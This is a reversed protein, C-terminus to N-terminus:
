FMPRNEMRNEYLKNMLSTAGGTQGYNGMISKVWANRDQPPQAPQGKPEAPDADRASAAHVTKRKKMVHEMTSTLRHQEAVKGKIVSHARASASHVIRLVDKALSPNVAVLQKLKATQAEKDQKWLSDETMSDDWLETLTELLKVGKQADAEKEKAVKAEEEAQQKQLIGESKTARDNALRLQERIKDLENVQAVLTNVVQDMKIADGGDAPTPATQQVVASAPPNAPAPTSVVQPTNEAQAAASADASMAAFSPNSTVLRRGTTNNSTTNNIYDKNKEEQRSSARSSAAHKAPRSRLVSRVACNKRKPENVLSVEIASKKGGNGDEEHEHQLSLANYYHGPGVGISKEAFVRVASESEAGKHGDPIKAVIFVRGSADQTQRVIKGAKLDPHHELRIEKGVLQLKEQEAKSFKFTPDDYWGGVREQQPPLCNGCFFTPMDGCLVICFCGLM